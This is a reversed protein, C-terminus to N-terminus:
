LTIPCIPQRFSKHYSVWVALHILVSTCRRRVFLSPCNNQYVVPLWTADGNTGVERCVVFFCKGISFSWKKGLNFGCMELALRCFTCCCLMFRLRFRHIWLSGLNNAPRLLVLYSVTASESLLRVPLSNFRFCIRLCLRCRSFDTLIQGCLILSVSYIQEFLECRIFTIKNSLM